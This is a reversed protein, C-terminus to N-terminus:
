FILRGILVLVVAGAVSLVLNTALPHGLDLKLGLKPAAYGALASGLIGWVVYSLLSGGGVVFSAIWGVILGFLFTVLIQQLDKSM